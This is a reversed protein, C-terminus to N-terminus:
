KIRQESKLHSLQYGVCDSVAERGAINGKTEWTDLRREEAGQREPIKESPSFHSFLQRIRSNRQLVFVIVISYLLLSSYLTSKSDLTSWECQTKSQLHLQGTPICLSDTLFHSLSVKDPSFALIHTHRWLLLLLVALVLSTHLGQLHTKQSDLFLSLNFFLILQFRVSCGASILEWRLVPTVVTWDDCEVALQLVCVSVWQWLVPSRGLQVNEHFRFFCFFTELYRLWRNLLFSVQVLRIHKGDSVDGEKKFSIKESKLKEITSTVAHKVM